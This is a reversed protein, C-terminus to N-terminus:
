NLFYADAFGVGKIKDLLAADGNALVSWFVKGKNEQKSASASIGEKALTDVVVKANKESAFSAVQIPRGATAPAQGAAEASAAAAAAAKAAEAEARRQKRTKRKEKVPPVPEAAVVAAGDKAADEAGAAPAALAATAAKAVSKGDVEDLAAAAIATTQIAGAATAKGAPAAADVAEKGKAAADGPAAEAAGAVAVEPVEEEVEEKRLATVKVKAPQGALLGLEAAADSSIQLKPGPNERERRFLAGTVTKGNETNVMLVREPDKADPSAVWIGGLSPRGDWLAQDTTQFVEPAEVDRNGAKTKKAPKSESAGEKPKSAFPGGGEVCATLLGAAALGLFVQRFVAKAMKQGRRHAIESAASQEAQMAIDSNTGGCVTARALM